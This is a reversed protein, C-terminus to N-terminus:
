QNGSHAGVVATLKEYADVSVVFAAGAASLTMTLNKGQTLAFGHPGFDVTYDQAGANTPAAAPISMFGVPVPTGASDAFTLTKASYTTVSVKIRQVYVTHNASKVTILTVPGADAAVVQAQARKDTHQQHYFNYDGGM